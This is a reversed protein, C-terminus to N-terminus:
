MKRFEDLLAPRNSYKEKLQEVLPPVQESFGSKSLGKLARAMDRYYKRGTNSALIKRILEEYLAFIEQTHSEKFHTGFRGLGRFDPNKQLWDLLDDMRKEEEYIEPLIYYSHHRKKLVSIAEDCVEPWIGLPTTKKLRRYNELNAKDYFLEKLREQHLEDDGQAEAAKALWDLWGSVLGPAEEGLTDIANQALEEVRDANGNEWASEILMELVGPLYRYEEMLADAEGPQNKNRLLTIKLKVTSELKYKWSYGERKQGIEKMREDLYTEIESLQGESDALRVAIAMLDTLTDWGEYRGGRLSKMCWKFFSKQQAADLPHGAAETLLHTAWRITDGVDANSDDIYQLAPVMEELVTQGIDIVTNRSGSGSKLLKEAQGLLEYAPQTAQRAEAGFSIGRRRAPALGAKILKRFQPKGASSDSPAMYKIFKHKLFHDAGCVSRIFGALQDRGAQDLLSDFSGPEPEIVSTADESFDVEQEELETLVAAIHKCPADAAYPCSCRCTVMGDGAPSVMVLYNESGVVTASWEGSVDQSMQVIAGSSWYSYGRDLIRGPFDATLRHPDILFSM